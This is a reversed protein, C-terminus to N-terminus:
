AAALAATFRAIDAPSVRCCGGVLRAGDQVWQSALSEWPPSAAGGTWGRATADWLEGSNPYVVVPLVSARAALRVAETADAPSSCNVGVAVIGPHGAVLAFAEDLPQGARTRGGDVTYSLWAPVDLGDLAALLAAAERIDPVTELALVDPRAQALLELRPRHFRVLEAHSLGYNGRYESGDALAAGYPGVSAAIWLPRVQRALEVSSVILRRASAPDHGRRVFGAVTAQYTATTVVQAGASVFDRHAAVIASPDEALLRASWLEDGLDHGAAELRTALGGDLLVPGARLATALETVLRNHLRGRAVTRCPSPRGIVALAADGPAGM